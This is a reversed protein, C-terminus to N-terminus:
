FCLCLLSISAITYLISLLSNIQQNDANCPPSGFIIHRLICGLSWLDYIALVYFTNTQESNLLTVALEPPCYGWNYKDTDTNCTVNGIKRSSRFDTLKWSRVCQVIIRISSNIKSFFHRFFRFQLNANLFRFLLVTSVRM